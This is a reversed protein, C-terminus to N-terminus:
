EVWRVLSEFLRKDPRQLARGNIVRCARRPQNTDRPNRPNAQFQDTPQNATTRVAVPMMIFPEVVTRLSIRPGGFCKRLVFAILRLVSRTAAPDINGPAIWSLHLLRDRNSLVPKLALNELRM